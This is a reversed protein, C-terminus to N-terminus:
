RLRLYVRGRVLCRSLVERSTFDRSRWRGAEITTYSMDLSFAVKDLSLTPENLLRIYHAWKLICYIMAHAVHINVRLNIIELDAIM